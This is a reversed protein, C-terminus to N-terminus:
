RQSCHYIHQGCLTVLSPHKTYLCSSSTGQHKAYCNRSCLLNLKSEAPTALDKKLFINVSNLQSNFSAMKYMGGQM